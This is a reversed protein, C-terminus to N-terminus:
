KLVCIFLGAWSSIDSAIIKYIPEYFIDPSLFRTNLIITAMGSKKKWERLSKGDLKIIRKFGYELKKGKVFTRSSAALLNLVCLLGLHTLHNEKSNQKSDFWYFCERFQFPSKQYNSSGLITEKRSKKYWYLMRFPAKSVRPM